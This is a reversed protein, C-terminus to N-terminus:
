VGQEWTILFDNPTMIFPEDPFHRSNGTILIAKNTKATDYFVRDDEDLLSITSETSDALIGNKTIEQLLSSVKDNSFNLKERGLVEKYEEIIEPVYCLTIEKKFFMEVINYANGQGSWLASVLINTDLVVKLM